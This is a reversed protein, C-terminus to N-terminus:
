ATQQESDADIHPQRKSKVHRVLFCLGFAGAVIAVCAVIAVILKWPFEDGGKVREWMSVVADNQAGFDQMVGLTGESKKFDPYRRHDGFFETLDYKV